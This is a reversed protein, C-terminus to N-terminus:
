RKQKIKQAYTTAEKIHSLGMGGYLKPCGKGEGDTKKWREGGEMKSGTTEGRNGEVMRWKLKGREM